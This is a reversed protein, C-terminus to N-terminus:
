GRSGFRAYVLMFIIGLLGGIGVGFGLNALSLIGLNKNMQQASELQANLEPLKASIQSYSVATPVSKISEGSVDNRHCELCNDASVSVFDHNADSGMTVMGGASVLAADLPGAAMHCSTCTADSNWHASHLSDDLSEKHCSTCQREDTLRMEQSHPLHCSICQVGEAGHISNEWEAATSAHCETCSSSDVRLPVVAEDPHGRVYEGHCSECTAVALGTAPDTSQGHLSDLWAEGEVEHCSTCPKVEGEDADQAFVPAGWLLMLALASILPLCLGRGLRILISM